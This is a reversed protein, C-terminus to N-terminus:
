GQANVMKQGAVIYVLRRSTWLPSPSPSRRCCLAPGVAAPMSIATSSSGPIVTASIERLM